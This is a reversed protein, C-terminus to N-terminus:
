YSSLASLVAAYGLWCPVADGIWKALAKRFPVTGDVTFDYTDPFGQIRAAERASLMRRQGPHIYRGRGPTNFGTTITPSPKDWSLRGYVSPYTNGNKHCDPREQNPLEYLDNDFLYDIRSKNEPSLTPADDMFSRHPSSELDGIVERLTMPPQRLLEAVDGIAVHDVRGRTAVLFHRKRTQAGGLETASLVSSSVCYGATKLIRAAAGVVNSKDALVDPVNEIVLARARLAIATAAVSVYLMNRPDSRRTHNNLNSHGQCPPGALVLDVKGVLAELRGDVLEPEYALEAEDGRGYIHYDVVSAANTALIAQPKFNRAYVALADTDVDVAALPVYNMGCAEVARAAGLSLGGSGCFFDVAHIAGVREIETPTGRLQQAWWQHALPIDELPKCKLHSVGRLSGAEVTRTIGGRTRRYSELLSQM